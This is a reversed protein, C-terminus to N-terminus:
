IALREAAWLSYAPVPNLKPLPPLSADDVCFMSGQKRTRETTAKVQSLGVLVFNSLIRDFFHCRCDVFAGLAEFRPQRVEDEEVRGQSLVSATEVDDLINARTRSYVGM